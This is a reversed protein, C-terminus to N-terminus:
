SLTPLCFLHVRAYILIRKIIIEAKGGFVIREVPGLDTFETIIKASENKVTEIEFKM